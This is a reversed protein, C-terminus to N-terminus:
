LTELLEQAPAFDPHSAVIAKLVAKAESAQELKLHSKAVQLQVQPRSLAEPAMTMLQIAQSAESDTQAAQGYYYGYMGILPLNYQEPADDLIANVDADEELLQAILAFTREDGFAERPAPEIGLSRVVAEAVAPTSTPNQGTILRGDQAVHSLMMPSASFNAGREKLKDELMFDFEPMWKQGFLREEVNTFSNVTKGNVLYSGDTLKVNVLAAPGHCVASVVGGQEYVRAIVTQLPKSEPFDFMAGKGGVVFISAYDAPNVESIALTNKLKAMAGNDALVIANQRSKPNFRDAEVAGGVPSAVDVVLGNNVFVLYAASFEEFEYGPKTEGSDEGYGSVVMLIKRDGDAGATMAVGMILLLASLGKILVNM